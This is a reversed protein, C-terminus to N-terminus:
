SHLVSNNSSWCIITFAPEPEVLAEHMITDIATDLILLIISRLGSTPALKWVSFKKLFAM